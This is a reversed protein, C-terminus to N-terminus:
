QSVRWFDMVFRQTQCHIQNLDASVSGGTCKEPLVSPPKPDPGVLQGGVVRRPDALIVQFSKLCTPSTVAPCDVTTGTQTCAYRQGQPLCTTWLGTLTRATVRASTTVSGGKGDRAVLTVVFSGERNFVHTVTADAGTGGDGLTWAYSLADGDPDSANATFTMTTVGVIAQGEPSVAISATPPRDAPLSGSTAATIGVAAAAGAGGLILALTKGHRRRTATLKLLESEFVTLVKPPFEDPRPRITPDCALAKRFKGRAAAEHDLGMYGAGLYMYAQALTKAQSPESLLARVLSDLTFIATDFDGENVQAIGMALMAEARSSPSDPASLGPLLAILCGLWAARRM